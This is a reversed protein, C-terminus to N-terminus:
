FLGDPEGDGQQVSLGATALSQSMLTRINSARDVLFEKYPKLSAHTGLGRKRASEVAREAYTSGQAWIHDTWPKFDADNLGLDSLHKYRLTLDHNEDLWDNADAERDGCFALEHDIAWLGIDNNWVLNKADRDGNFIWQDFVLIGSLAYRESNVLTVLNPPPLVKGDRSTIGSVWAERNEPLSTIDGFPVPVGAFNALRAALYEHLVLRLGTVRQAKVYVHALGRWMQNSSEVEPLDLQDVKM